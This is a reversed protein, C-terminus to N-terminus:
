TTPTEFVDIRFSLMDCVTRFIGGSMNHSATLFTTCLICPTIKQSRHECQFHDLEEDSFHIYHIFMSLKVSLNYTYKKNKYCKKCQVSGYICKAAIKPIKNRPIRSEM